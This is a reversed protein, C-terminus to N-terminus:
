WAQEQAAALLEASVAELVENPAVGHQKRESLNRLVLGDELGVLLAMLLCLRASAGTLGLANVILFFLAATLVEVILYRAPIMAGTPRM